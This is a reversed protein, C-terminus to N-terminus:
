RSKASLAPRSDSVWSARAARSPRPFAEAYFKPFFRRMFNLGDESLGKITKIRKTRSMNAYKEGIAKILEREAM